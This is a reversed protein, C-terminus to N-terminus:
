ANFTRWFFHWLRFVPEWLSESPFYCVFRMDRYLRQLNKKLPGSKVKSGPRKDYQGFNGACIIEELLFRGRKEDVPVILLSEPLGFAVQEVYMVAGAFGYLGLRRFMGADHDREANSFGQNLVFFYDLFQRLGIGEHFFHNSIHVMQFIRDFDTTPVSMQKVGGPLTMVNGFQRDTEEKFYKQLRHNAIMNNLFSPRYHAEVDIGKVKRFEIHHYVARAMPVNDKVYRIVKSCGGDLWVDIDGSMRIYPDPYRLANGQGKLICNRFGESRFTKSVFACTEYLLVNKKRIKNSHYFWEMVDEDIPKNEHGVMREMGYFFVGVIRQKIAFDLLDHWVIDKSCEPVEGKPDVCSRLFEFYTDQKNKDM